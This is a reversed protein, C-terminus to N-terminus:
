LVDSYLQNYSWVCQRAALYSTRAETLACRGALTLAPRNPLTERHCELGLRCGVNQPTAFWRSPIRGPGNPRAETLGRGPRVRSGGSFRRLPQPRRPIGLQPAGRPRGLISAFFYGTGEGEGGARLWGRRGYRLRAVRLWVLRGYRALRLPSQCHVCRLRSYGNFPIFRHLSDLCEGNQGAEGGDGDGGGVRRRIEVRCEPAEEAAIRASTSCCASTRSTRDGTSAENWAIRSSRVLVAIPHVQILINFRCRHVSQIRPPQPLDLSSTSRLCDGCCLFWSM